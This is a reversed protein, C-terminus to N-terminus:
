LYWLDSILFDQICNVFVALDFRGASSKDIVTTDQELIQCCHIILVVTEIFVLIFLTTCSLTQCVPVSSGGCVM